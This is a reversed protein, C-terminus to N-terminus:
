ANRGERLACNQYRVLNSKKSCFRSSLVSALAKYSPLPGKGKEHWWFRLAEMIRSAPTSVGSKEELCEAMFRMLQETVGGPTTGLLECYTKFYAAVGEAGTGDMEATRVASWLVKGRLYAPLGLGSEPLTFSLNHAATQQVAYSGTKRIAPLVESRVWKSFAKAEPKRSRFILAYLGSESIVTLTQQRGIRDTIGVGDREDEDLRSVADKHNVIELVRCVDKAVFWPDGKEDTTTRVLHDEFAFLTVESEM